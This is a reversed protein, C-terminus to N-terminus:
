PTGGGGKLQDRLLALRLALEVNNKVHLKRRLNQIHIRLTDLRIRLQRAVAKRALGLLLLVAVEIEKVTVHFAGAVAFWEEATLFESGPNEPGLHLL